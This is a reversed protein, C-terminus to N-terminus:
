RQDDALVHRSGRGEARGKARLDVQGDDRQLEKSGLFLLRLVQGPQQATLNHAGVTQAFRARAGVGKACPGARRPLRVAAKQQVGLFHPNRVSSKGVEEHYKGLDIALVEGCKQDLAREADLATFFLVLHAKVAGRRRTQRELVDTDGCLVDKTLD